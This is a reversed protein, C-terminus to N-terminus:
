AKGADSDWAAYEEGYRKFYEIRYVRDDEIGALFAGDVDEINVTDMPKVSLGHDSGEWYKMIHFAKMGHKCCKKLEKLWATYRKIEAAEKDGGGLVTGCDCHGGSLRFYVGDKIGPNFLMDRVKMRGENVFGHKWSISLFLEDYAQENICGYLFYCM